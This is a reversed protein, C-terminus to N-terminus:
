MPFVTEYPISGYLNKKELWFFTEPKGRMQSMNFVSEDLVAVAEGEDEETSLYGYKESWFAVVEDEIAFKM